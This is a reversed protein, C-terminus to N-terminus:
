LQQAPSKLTALYKVSQTNRREDKLRGLTDHIYKNTLYLYWAVHDTFQTHEHLGVMSPFHETDLIAIRNQKTIKDQNLVYNTTHPDISLSLDCCLQMVLREREQPTCEYHEHTDIEDAIIGYISPISTKTISDPHHIHKGTIEIYPVSPPTWFWKRPTYVVSHWAPLTAIRENIAELNKIRTLGAIHRNSGGAMFFFTIPELGKCYPNIFTKPTEMFLKLILPYEKCKLVLLGCLKHRNFNKRQLIVFDKLTKKHTYLEDLLNLIKKELVTRPLVQADPTNLIITDPLVHQAVYDEDFTDFIPYSAYHSSICTYQKDSNAWRTTIETIPEKYTRFPSRSIRYVHSCGSLTLASLFFLIHYLTGV